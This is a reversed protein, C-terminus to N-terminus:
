WWGTPNFLEDIQGTPQGRENYTFTHQHFLESTRTERIYHTHGGFDQRNLPRGAENYFTRSVLRNTRRDYQEWMSNAFWREPAQSHSPTIPTEVQWPGPNFRPDTTKDGFFRWSGEPQNQPYRLDAPNNYQAVDYGHTDPIQKSGFYQRIEEIQAPTLPNNPDMKIDIDGGTRAGEPLGTDRWEYSYPKYKGGGLDSQNPWYFDPSARNKLGIETESLSGAIDFQKGWEDAKNRFWEFDEQTMRPGVPCTNHVLWRQEGVFFTHAQAVTLNFM